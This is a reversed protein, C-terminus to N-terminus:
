YVREFWRALQPNRCRLAGLSDSIYFRRHFLMKDATEVIYGIDKKIITHDHLADDMLESVEICTQYWARVNTVFSQARKREIRTRIRSLM